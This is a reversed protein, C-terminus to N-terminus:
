DNKNMEKIIKNTIADSDINANLSITIREGNSRKIIKYNESVHYIASRWGENYSEDDSDALELLEWLKGTM